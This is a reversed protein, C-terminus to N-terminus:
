PPVAFTVGLYPHCTSGDVNNLRPQVNLNKAHLVILIPINDPFCVDNEWAQDVNLM